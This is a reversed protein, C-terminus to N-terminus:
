NKFKIKLIIMSILSSMETNQTIKCLILPAKLIILIVPKQLKSVVNLSNQDFDLASVDNIINAGKKIAVLMVDSKRTDISINYKKMKSIIPLVRQKEIETSILKAGPRTSEGGIDIFSAGDNIMKKIHMKALKLKNFKGGDSFSDPTMNLVGFINFKDFDLGSIKEKSTINRVNKLVNKKLKIPLYKIQNIDIKKFKYKKARIIIEVNSFALKKNGCIPLAKKLKILSIANSGYSLSM